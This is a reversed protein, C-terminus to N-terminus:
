HEGMFVTHNPSNSVLHICAMVRLGTVLEGVYGKCLMCICTTNLGGTTVYGSEAPSFLIEKKKKVTNGRNIRHFM